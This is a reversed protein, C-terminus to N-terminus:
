VITVLNNGYRCCINVFLKRTKLKIHFLSIKFSYSLVKLRKDLSAMSLFFGEIPITSVYIRLFTLYVAFHVVLSM